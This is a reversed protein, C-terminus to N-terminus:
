TAGSRWRHGSFPEETRILHCAGHPSKSMLDDLVVRARVVEDDDTEEGAASMERPPQRACDAVEFGLLNGDPRDVDAQVTIVEAAAEVRGGEPGALNWNIDVPLGDDENVINEEGAAADARREVRKNVEAPGRADTKRYHHVAPMAFQRDSGVEDALIDWGREDLRHVDM